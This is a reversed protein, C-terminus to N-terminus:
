YFFSDFNCNFKKAQPDSDNAYLKPYEVNYRFLLYGDLCNLAIKNSKM